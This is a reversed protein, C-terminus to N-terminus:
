DSREPAAPAAPLRELLARLEGALAEEHRTDWLLNELALRVLQAQRGSLALTTPPPPAAALSTVRPRAPALPATAVALLPRLLLLPVPASRVLEDAVSGLLWRAAGSRGHGSIVILDAHEQRAYQVIREAAVGFEAAVRVQYGAARLPAAVKELYALAAARTAELQETWPSDAGADPVVPTAPALAQYLLLEGGPGVLARSHVLAREALESGDLPVLVRRPREACTAQGSRVLLVPQATRHLVQDAVSGLVWRGPGTRGHTTMVIVDVARAAAEHVVADAPPGAAVVPEAVLGRARVATAVRALYAAALPEEEPPAARVLYLTSPALRALAEACPLAAEAVESGDLPVLIQACM